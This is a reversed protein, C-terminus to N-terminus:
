PKTPAELDTTDIVEIEESDEPFSSKWLPRIVAQAKEIAPYSALIKPLEEEDLGLLAKKLAAQDFNWIIKIQGSLSFNISDVASIDELASQKYAFTLTTPDELRVPEGGYGPVSSKALFSAFTTQNFLPVHLRAREKLVAADGGAGEAPLSEYGFTIAPEYLIFGNPRENKIRALLKDRLEMHLKQRTTALENEDIIFKTGEFGGQIGVADTEAYILDYQDTDKLGPVSFRANTINYAEGPGEAFVKVKISGAVAEGAANKKYGPVEISESIRYIKGTKSEFRTNKILRQPSTSYANYVTITGEARQSVEEQGTAEVQVQGSEELTLLEYGLEGPGPELMAMYSAQIATEHTKPTVTVEAGSLLITIGGGVFLIIALAVGAFLYRRLRLLRGDAVELREAAMDTEDYRDYEVLDEERERLQEDNGQAYAEHVEEDSRAPAMRPRRVDGVQAIRRPEPRVSAGRVNQPPLSRRVPRKARDPPVIDQLNWKQAM